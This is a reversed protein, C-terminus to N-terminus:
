HKHNRQVLVLFLLLEFQYEFQRALQNNHDLQHSHNNEILFLNIDNKRKAGRDPKAALNPISVPPIIIM